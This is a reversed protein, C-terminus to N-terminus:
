IDFVLRRTKEDLKWEYNFGKQLGLAQAIAKPINAFFQGHPNQQIKPM